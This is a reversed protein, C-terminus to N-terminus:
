SPARTGKFWNVATSGLTYGFGTGWLAGIVAIYCGLRRHFAIIDCTFRGQVGSFRAMDIGCDVVGISTVLFAAAFCSLSPSFSPADSPSDHGSM